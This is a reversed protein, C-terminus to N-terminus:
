FEIATHSQILDRIRREFANADVCAFFQVCSPDWPHLLEKLSFNSRLISVARPYGSRSETTQQNGIPKPPISMIIKKSSEWDFQELASLREDNWHCGYPLVTLRLSEITTHITMQSAIAAKIDDITTSDSFQLKHLCFESNEIYAITLFEEKQPPKPKPIIRSLAKRLISDKPPEKKSQQNPSEVRRTRSSWKKSNPINPLM